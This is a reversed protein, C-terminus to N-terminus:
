ERVISLKYGMFSNKKTRKRDRYRRLSRCRKLTVQTRYSMDKLEERNAALASNIDDFAKEISTFMEGFYIASLHEMKGQFSHLISDLYDYTGIKLQKATNETVRMLKM